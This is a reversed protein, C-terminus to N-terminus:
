LSIGVYYICYPDFSVVVSGAFNCHSAVLALHLDLTTSAFLLTQRYLRAHGAVQWNRVRTSDSSVDKVESVPLNISELVTVVHEWNQMFFIDAQSLLVHM